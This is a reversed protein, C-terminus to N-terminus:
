WTGAWAGAPVIKPRLEPLAAAVQALVAREASESQVLLEVAGIRKSVALLRRLQRKAALDISQTVPEIDFTAMGNRDHVMASLRRGELM